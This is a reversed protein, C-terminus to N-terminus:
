CLLQFHKYQFVEAWEPMTMTKWHTHIYTRSNYNGFSCSGLFFLNVDQVFLAKM